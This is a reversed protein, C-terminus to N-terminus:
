GRRAAELTAAHPTAAEQRDERVIKEVRVGILRIKKGNPDKAL